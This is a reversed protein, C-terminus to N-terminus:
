QQEELKTLKIANLITEGQSANLTIRIGEDHHTRICITKECATNWEPQWDHCIEQGNVCVTMKRGEFGTDLVKSGLNYVSMTVEGQQQLEAFYLTLEYAGDPVDLRYESIGLRATQFIPDNHTNM